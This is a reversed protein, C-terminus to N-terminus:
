MIKCGLVIQGNQLKEGCVRGHVWGVEEGIKGRSIEEQECLFFGTPPPSKLVDCFNLGFLLHHQVDDFVSTGSIRGATSSAIPGACLSLM